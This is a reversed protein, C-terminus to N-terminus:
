IGSPAVEAIVPKFISGTLPPLTTIGAVFPLPDGVLPANTTLPPIPTPPGDTNPALKVTVPLAIMWPLKVTLPANSYILVVIVVCM